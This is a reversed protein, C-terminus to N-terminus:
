AIRLSCTRRLFAMEKIPELKSSLLSKFAKNALREAMYEVDEFTGGTRDYSDSPNAGLSPNVDGCSGNFFISNSRSMKEFRKVLVGPYDSSFYRNNPGM